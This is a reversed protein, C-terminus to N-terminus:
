RHLPAGFPILNGDPDTHSGERKGYDYDDPGNVTLGAKRWANAVQDADDVHIYLSGTGLATDRDAQTLHITLDRDRHAFAYTYTDDHKSTEFGLRMYHEISRPLDSVAFIPEFGAVRWGSSHAAVQKTRQAPLWDLCRHCIKIDRRSQLQVTDAVAEGCCSCTTDAVAEFRLGVIRYRSTDPGPESTRPSVFGSRSAKRPDHSGGGQQM